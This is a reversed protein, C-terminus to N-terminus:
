PCQHTETVLQIAKVLSLVAVAMPHQSIMPRKPAPITKPPNPIFGAHAAKSVVLTGLNGVKPSQWLYVGKPFLIYPLSM